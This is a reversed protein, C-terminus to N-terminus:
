LGTRRLLQGFRADSRLPDLSPDTKAYIALPNHSDYAKGLWELAEQNEGLGICVLVFSFPPVYETQSRSQLKQLFGRGSQVDGSRAAVYGLLGMSLPTEGGLKQSERLERIADEFKGQQAYALALYNHVAVFASDLELVKRYAAIAEDYRRALYLSWGIDATAIPSLPDAEAALQEQKLAEDLRGAAALALGYRQHATASNADLALAARFEKEAVPLNHDHFLAVLGLAAHADALSKDLQLAQKAAARV